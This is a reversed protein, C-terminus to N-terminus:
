SRVLMEMKLVDQTDCPAKSIAKESSAATKTSSNIAPVPTGSRQRLRDTHPLGRSLLLRIDDSVTLMQSLHNGDFVILVPDPDDIVAQFDNFQPNTSQWAPGAPISLHYGCQTLTSKRRM